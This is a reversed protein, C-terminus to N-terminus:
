AAGRARAEARARLGFRDEPFAASSRPSPEPTTVGLYGGSGRLDVSAPTETVALTGFVRLPGESRRRPPKTTAALLERARAIAEPSAGGAAGGAGEEIVPAPGPEETIEGVVTPSVGVVETVKRPEGPDEGWEEVDHLRGEAGEDVDVATSTGRAGESATLPASVAAEPTTEADIVGELDVVPGPPCDLCREIVSGDDLEVWEVRVHRCRLSSVEVPVDAEDDPPDDLLLQGARWVLLRTSSMVEDPWAATLRIHLESAPWGDDLLDDVLHALEWAKSTRALLDARLDDMELDRVIADLVAVTAQHDILIRQQQREGGAPRARPERADSPPTGSPEGPEPECGPEPELPSVFTVPPPHCTRREGPSQIEQESGREPEGSRETMPLPIVAGVAEPCLRYTNTSQGGDKKRARRTSPPADDRDFYPTTVLYGVGELERLARQVTRDSRGGLEKAITKVRPFCEGTARDAHAALVGAVRYATGSVLPILANPLQNFRRGGTTSSTPRPSEVRVHAAAASM